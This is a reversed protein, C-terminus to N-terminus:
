LPQDPLQQCSVLLPIGRGANKMGKNREAKVAHKYVCTQYQQGKSIVTDKM